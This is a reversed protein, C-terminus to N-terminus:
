GVAPCSHSHEKGEEQVQSEERERSVMYRVRGSETDHLTGIVKGKKTNEEANCSIM